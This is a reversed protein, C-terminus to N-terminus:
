RRPPEAIVWPPDTASGAVRRFPTEYTRELLDPRLVEAPTGQAVVGAGNGTEGLLVVRDAFRSALNPDHLVALVGLGGAVVRERLTAMVALQRAPDLHATPEDLLMLEPEQALARALLVRQREGASLENIGRLLLPEVHTITIARAIAAADAVTPRGLLGLHAYRGLEIVAAVAFDYPLPEAEHLVAVLRARARASFDRPPRGALRVSGEIVAEDGLVTALLTSKGVGNKGLVAVLEGQAVTLNVDHLLARGGRGIAAAKFELLPAKM